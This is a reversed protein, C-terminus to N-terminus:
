ARTKTKKNISTNGCFRLTNFFSSPDSKPILTPYAIEDVSARETDIERNIQTTTTTKSSKQKKKPSPPLPIPLYPLRPDNHGRPSPKKQVLLGGARNTKGALYAKEDYGKKITPDLPWKRKAPPIPSSSSSYHHKTSSSSPSSPSSSNIQTWQLINEYFLFILWLTAITVILCLPKNIRYQSSQSHPHSTSRSTFQPRRRHM